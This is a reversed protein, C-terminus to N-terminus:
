IRRPPRRTSSSWGRRTSDAKAGSGGADSKRSTPGTKNPRMSRRKKYTLGLKVLVQHIAPITCALGLRGKIEALTIDPEKAVLGKLEEGKEPLLKAKRGSFRHRADIRGTRRRQLLLKKVMGQSVRFRKAVEEQTWKGEDYTAVIRQRLDLSTTKM